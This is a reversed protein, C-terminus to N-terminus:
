AMSGLEFEPKLAQYLRRFAKIRPGYAEVLRPDPAVVDQVRPATCVAEVAEGTTALRALRAAGFAPGKDSGAYRTLPINLANALIRTWLGSRSGGGIVSAQSVSTGAMELCDKADAFSFAVGELVSQVLEARGVRPTMGFFVARAHPDNHPTREGMLYPLFLCSAPQDFRREAEELLSAIDGSLLEAAWALCSAANLMAAMQFWRGPVAHSFAHILTEPAARFQSTTVFLQGSTGLSLFAAGDEVAGLGVAGAAADGAGGAVVVRGSLGWAQALEPRLTGSPDSGECLRPMRSRDLGTAILADDSWDRLAEDLWWTGAADSMETVKEGTLKLRVYDKPLMITRAAEVIEPRHRALWLLKPATFGPMPLVGTVHSLQPHIENLEAAERFSRGDNWLIAPCLPQDQGGLVVAGHMQGSLGIGHVGAFPTPAQKRLAAVAEEVAAWWAEPEQESWLPQPRSVSLAVSSEALVAQKEDVLVAKIASTGVDIGLYTTV